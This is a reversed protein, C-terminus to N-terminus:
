DNKDVEEYLKKFLAHCDIDLIVIPIALSNPTLNTKKLKIIFQSFTSESFTGIMPVWKNNHPSYAIVQPLSDEYVDFRSQLYSHCRADLYGMWMSESLKEQGVTEMVKMRKTTKEKDGAGDILM